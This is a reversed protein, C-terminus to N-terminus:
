AWFEKGGSKTGGQAMPLKLEERSQWCVFGKDAAKIEEFIKEEWPEGGPANRRAVRLVFIFM